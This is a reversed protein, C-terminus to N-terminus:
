EEIEVMHDAYESWYEATQYAELCGKPVHIKCIESIGTFTSVNELTPPITLMMYYHEIASCGSFVSGQSPIMEQWMLLKWRVVM